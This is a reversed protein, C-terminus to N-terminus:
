FEFAVGPALQTGKTCKHNMGSRSYLFANVGPLGILPRIKKLFNLAFKLNFKVASVGRSKKHKKCEVWNTLVVFQLYNFDTAEGRYLIGYSVVCM